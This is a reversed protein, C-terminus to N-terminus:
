LPDDARTSASCHTSSPSPRLLCSARCLARPVSRARPRPVVCSRRACSLLYPIMRRPRHTPCPCPCPYPCPAHYSAHCPASRPADRQERHTVYRAAEEELPLQGVLMAFLVVGLSWMDAAFGDYGDSGPERTSWAVVEPASYVQSIHRSVALYPESCPTVQRM